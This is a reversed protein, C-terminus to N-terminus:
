NNEQLLEGGKKQTPDALLPAMKRKTGPELPGGHIGKARRGKKSKKREEGMEKKEQRDRRLLSDLNSSREVQVKCRCIEAKSATDGKRKAKKIAKTEREADAATKQRQGANAIKV